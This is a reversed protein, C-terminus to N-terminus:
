IWACIEVIDDFPIDCDCVHLLYNINDHYLIQSLRSYRVRIIPTLSLTSNPHVIGTFKHTHSM